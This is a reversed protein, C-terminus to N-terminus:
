TLTHRLPQAVQKLKATFAALASEPKASPLNALSSALRTTRKIPAGASPRNGTGMILDGEWCGSMPRACRASLRLRCDCSPLCIRPPEAPHWLCAAKPRTQSPNPAWAGRSPAAQSEYGAPTSNRAGYWNTPTPSRGMTKAIARLSQGHQRLNALRLRGDPQLQRYRITM